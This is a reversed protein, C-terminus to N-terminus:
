GNAESLLSVGDDFDNDGDDDSTDNDDADDGDDGSGDGGTAWWEFTGNRNLSFLLRFRIFLLRDFTFVSAHFHLRVSM